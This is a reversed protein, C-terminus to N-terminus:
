EIHGEPLMQARSKSWQSYTIAMSVLAIGPQPKLVIKM